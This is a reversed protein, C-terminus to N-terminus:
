TVHIKERVQADRRQLVNLASEHVPGCRTLAKETADTIDFRLIKASGRSVDFLCASGLGGDDRPLGCSGVNVFLTGRHLRAFPRHTHGMFVASFGGTEFVDLSTEPYVYGYTPDDPSGHVFLLQGCPRHLILSRPWAEVQSREVEDLAARASALRYVREKEPSVAGSLLMQEHNGAICTVDDSSMLLRLCEAGPLYGVADGLFVIEDAGNARLLDLAQTLAEVNGHADSIVGLVTAWNLSAGGWSLSAGGWSVAGDCPM